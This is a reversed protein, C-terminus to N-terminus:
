KEMYKFEKILFVKQGGVPTKYAGNYEFFKGSYEVAKEPLNELDNCLVGIIQCDYTGKVNTIVIFGELDSDFKIIGNLGYLETVFNDSLCVDQTTRLNTLDPEKNKYTCLKSI